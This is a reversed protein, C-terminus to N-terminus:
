KAGDESSGDAFFCAALHAPRGTIEVLEPPRSACAAEARICRGRFACGAPRDLPSPPEGALRVRPGAEASIRLAAAILAQTYPHRPSGFIQDSSAVEVIRGLYMVAVRDCLHRVAALNHSVFLISVGMRARISEFLQLISAQVSVDLASVAEDAILTLPEVALARAIALRQRQGGSFASPYRDLADDPLGVLAMLERCRGDVGAGPVLGHVRLLERLVQRITLRPNLSSFPDQFVIQVSRHQEASRRAPLEVGDVAIRGADAPVLGAVCRALTTKGCGSEGVLGLVEGPELRLSVSDVAPFTGRRRSRADVPFSVTVGEVELRPQRHAVVATSAESHQAGVLGALVGSM